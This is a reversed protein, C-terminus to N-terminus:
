RLGDWEELFEWLFARMFADREDAISRGTDTNMLAKLKLLKEYFHNVTTGKHNRYEEVTMQLKPPIDPHHMLRRHNGGYAFARAIGIAGIADLRDADQVCKGEISNPVVAGTGAFSVEGIIHCIQEAAAPEVHHEALFDRAHSLKGATEPFLKPDDADHLLAALAVVQRDAGEKEAIRLATNFVRLTHFYDHGSFEGSFLQEVYLKAHEILKDDM